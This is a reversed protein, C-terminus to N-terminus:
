HEWDSQSKRLFVHPSVAMVLQAQGGFICVILSLHCLDLQRPDPLHDVWYLVQQVLM